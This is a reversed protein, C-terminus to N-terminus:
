RKRENVSVPSILIDPCERFVSSKTEKTEWDGERCSFADRIKRRFVLEDRRHKNKAHVSNRVPKRM